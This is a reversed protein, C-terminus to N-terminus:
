LNERRSAEMKTEIEKAYDPDDQVGLIFHGPLVSKWPRVTLGQIEELKQDNLASPNVLCLEAARGYKKQYYIFAKVIKEVLSTKPDSDFWLMGGNM